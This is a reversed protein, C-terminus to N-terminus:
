TDFILVCNVRVVRGRKQIAQELENRFQIADQHRYFLARPAGRGGIALHPQTGDKRKLLVGYYTEETKM